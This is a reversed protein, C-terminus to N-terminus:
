IEKTRSKIKPIDITLERKVKSIIDKNLTRYPLSSIKRQNYLYTFPELLYFDLLFPNESIYIRSFKNTLLEVLHCQKEALWIYFDSLNDKDQTVFKQYTKDYIQYIEDPDDKKLIKNPKIKKLKDLQEYSYASCFELKSLKINDFKKIGNKFYNYFDLCYSGGYKKINYTKEDNKINDQKGGNQYNILDNNSYMRQKIESNKNIIINKNIENEEIKDTNINNSDCSIYDSYITVDIVNFYYAISSILYLFQNDNMIKQRNITSYKVYYNVAMSTKNDVTGIEIFFLMYNEYLCYLSFGNEVQLSYFKKYVKTSDFFEIIVPLVLDDIQIMIQFLENSYKKIFYEIKDDLNDKDSKTIQLFDIIHPKMIETKNLNVFSIDKHAIYTFEYKTKINSAFHSDTHYYIDKDDKKDLRFVSLPSFLIEEEFAFHSYTEMCLAVGKKGGPIKIKLLIFGFKYIDSRYFPDRTTSMFGNETYMDGIDLMQLHNDTNIFRYVIYDKDFAPANNILKWMPEILSELYENKYNNSTQNRLYVNMFYSGQLSYYQILGIKNETAIYKQHELLITANIDNKNILNCLNEIKEIDYYTKSPKILKMNLGLNILESRSYYPNIHYFYSIFSPRKCTTINKGIENSYLYFVKIYTNFLVKLNFYKIFKIMLNLKNYQRFLLIEDKLKNYKIYNTDDNKIIKKLEDNIESEKIKDIKPKIKKRENILEILLHKDPFRYKTYTVREYVNHKDILYINDTYIDYLPIMDEIKSLNIKNKKLGIDIDEFIKIINKDKIKKINKEIIEKTPMIAKQYYLDDIADKNPISLIKDDKIYYLIIETM